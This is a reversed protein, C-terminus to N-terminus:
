DELKKGILEAIYRLKNPSDCVSVATGIARAYKECFIYADRAETTFWRERYGQRDAATVMTKKNIRSETYGEGVIWLGKTEDRIVKSMWEGESRRITSRLWLTDGVATM